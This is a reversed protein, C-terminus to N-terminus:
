IHILSLHAKQSPDGKDTGFEYFNNYTTIDKFPTKKEDLVYGSPKVNPLAPYDSEQGAALARGPLAMGAGLVAGARLLDRRRAYLREPTVEREPIPRGLQEKRRM